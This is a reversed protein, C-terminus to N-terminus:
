NILILKACGCITQLRFNDKEDIKACASDSGAAM